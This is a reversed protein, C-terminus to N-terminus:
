FRYEIYAFQRGLQVRLWLKKDDDMETPEIHFLTTLKYMKGPGRLGRVFPLWVARYRTPGLEGEVATVDSFFFHRAPEEPSAFRPFGIAFQRAGSSDGLRAPGEFSRSPRWRRPCKLSIPTPAGGPPSAVM